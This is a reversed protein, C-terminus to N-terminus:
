ADGDIPVVRFATRAVKKETENMLLAIHDLNSRTARVCQECTLGHGGTRLSIMSSTEVTQPLRDIIRAIIARPNSSCSPCEELSCRYPLGNCFRIVEALSGLTEVCERDYSIVWDRALLVERVGTESSLIRLVGRFCTPNELNQTQACDQCCVEIIGNNKHYECSRRGIPREPLKTRKGKWMGLTLKM